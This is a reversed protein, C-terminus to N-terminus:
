NKGDQRARFKFKCTCIINTFLISNQYSCTGMTYHDDYQSTTCVTWPKFGVTFNKERNQIKPAIEWNKCSGM